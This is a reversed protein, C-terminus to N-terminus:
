QLEDGITKIVNPCWYNQLSKSSFTYWEAKVFNYDTVVSICTASVLVFFYKKCACLSIVRFSIEGWDDHKLPLGYFTGLCIEPFLWKCAESQKIFLSILSSFQLKCMRRAAFREKLVHRQHYSICFLKSTLKRDISAEWMISPNQPKIVTCKDTRVKYSLFFFLYLLVEQLGIARLGSSSGLM